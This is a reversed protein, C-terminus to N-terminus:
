KCGRMKRNCQVTSNPVEAKHEVEDLVREYVSRLAMESGYEAPITHRQKEAPLRPAFPGCYGPPHKHGTQHERWGCCLCLAAVINDDAGTGHAIRLGSM